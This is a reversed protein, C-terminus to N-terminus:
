REFISSRSPTRGAGALVAVPPKPSEVKLGATNERAALQLRVRELLIALKKSEHDRDAQKCMKQFDQPPLQERHSM